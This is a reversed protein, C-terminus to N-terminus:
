KAYPRASFRALKFIEDLARDEAKMLAEELFETEVIAHYSIDETLAVDWCIIFKPM